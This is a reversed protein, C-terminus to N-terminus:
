EKNLLAEVRKVLNNRLKIISRGYVVHNIGHLDFFINESDETILITEKKLAHAYGVEYFVNPNNGTMDAVILDAKNISVIIQNLIDGSFQIEDARECILGMKELPEKIGLRYVDNYKNAFPMLAFVKSKKM